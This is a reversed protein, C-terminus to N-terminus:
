YLFLFNIDIIIIIFILFFYSKVFNISFNYIKLLYKKLKALIYKKLIKFYINLM